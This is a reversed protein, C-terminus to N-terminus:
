ILENLSLVFLICTIILMAFFIILGTNKKKHTSHGAAVLGVQRLANIVPKYLLFSFGANLGAKLLNFPLFIPILMKVVEARSIGMYLPTILYNWLIMVIAMAISGSILGAVAGSITHRKKYIFSATCAFACTSIINMFFGIIGTSSVTIMEFFSVIISVCMASLPGYIFGGITIIIDKPDYKLFSIVPIRFFFMLVYSIACLMALTTIKKTNTKM